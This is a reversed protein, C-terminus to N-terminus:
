ARKMVQSASSFLIGFNESICQSAVIFVFRTLANDAERIAMRIYIAKLIEPVIWLLVGMQAPMTAQPNINGSRSKRTNIKLINLRVLRGNVLSSYANTLRSAVNNITIPSGRIQAIM